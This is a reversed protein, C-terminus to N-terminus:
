FKKLNSVTNDPTHSCRPQCHFLINTVGHLSSGVGHFNLFVPDFDSNITCSECCIKDVNQFTPSNWFKPRIFRPKLPRLSGHDHKHLIQAKM